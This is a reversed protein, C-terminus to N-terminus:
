ARDEVPDLRGSVVHEVAPDTGVQRLAAVVARIM